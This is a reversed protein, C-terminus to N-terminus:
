AAKREEPTIRRGLPPHGAAERQHHGIGALFRAHRRLPETREIEAWWRMGVLLAGMQLTVDTAAGRRATQHDISDFLRAIATDLAEIRAPLSTADAPTGEGTAIWRWDEAIIGWAAIEAKADEESIRGGQVMEPLAKTRRSLAAAAEDAMELWYDKAIAPNAVRIHTWGRAPQGTLSPATM